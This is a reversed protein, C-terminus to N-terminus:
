KIKLHKRIANDSVDLQKAVQVFNSENIKLWLEEDTPWNIKKNRITHQMCTKSHKGISKGCHCKNGYIAPTPLKKPAFENNKDRNTKKNKSRFTDTQSHCNPCLIRLNELRNDLRNGNIHDLELSIYAGNWQELNCHLCRRDIGLKYMRDKTGKGNRSVGIVFWDDDSIIQSTKYERYKNPNFHSYDVSNEQTWRDFRQYSANAVSWEMKKFVELKSFSEAVVQDFKSSYVHRTTM